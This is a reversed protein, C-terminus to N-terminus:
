KYDGEKSGVGAQLWNEEFLFVGTATPDALVYGDPDSDELRPMESVPVNVGDLNEIRMRVPGRCLFKAFPPGIPILRPQPLLFLRNKKNQFVATINFGHSVSVLTVKWRSKGWLYLVALCWFM